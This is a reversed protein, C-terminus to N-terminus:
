KLANRHQLEILGGFIKDYEEPIFRKYGSAPFFTVEGFYIIHEIQYFDIRVFPIDKSIMGAMQIMENLKEPKPIDFEDTHNGPRHVPMRKWELDYFIEILGSETYRNSCTLIFRPIGNFCHIKYDM